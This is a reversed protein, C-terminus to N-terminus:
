QAFLPFPPFCGPQLYIKQSAQDPALPFCPNRSAQLQFCCRVARGFVFLACGCYFGIRGSNSSLPKFFASGQRNWLWFCFLKLGKCRGQSGSGGSPRKPTFKPRAARTAAQTQVGGLQHIGLRKPGLQRSTSQCSLLM